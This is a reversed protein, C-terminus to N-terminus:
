GEEQACVRCATGPALKFYDPDCEERCAQCPFPCPRAHRPDHCHPIIGRRFRREAHVRQARQM